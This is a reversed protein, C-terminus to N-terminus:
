PGAEEDDDCDDDDCDDDDCDDCCCCCDCSAPPHGRILIVFADIIGMALWYACFLLPITIWCNEGLFQWFSM